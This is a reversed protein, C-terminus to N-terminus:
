GFQHGHHDLGEYGAAFEADSLEPLHYELEDPPIHTPSRPGMERPLVEPQNPLRFTRPRVGEAGLPNDSRILGKSEARAIANDLARATEVDDEDGSAEIYAEHLRFGTIPGEVDVLCVVNEVLREPSTEDVPPFTGSFVIYPLLKPAPKSGTESVGGPPTDNVPPEDPGNQHPGFEAAESPTDSRTDGASSTPGDNQQFWEPDSRGFLRQREADIVEKALASESIDYADAASAALESQHAFEKFVSAKWGLLRHLRMDVGEESLLRHVQVSRAQGMRHARAIAQWETTPKLQPECIIVVSAAQINLGVGGAEIQALLVAGGRAEKFDDILKQRKAAQVSGTLPGFVRGPLAAAVEDLVRLFYSFVLVHRGNEEAEAVIEILRQLKTSEAGGLMAAQRTAMFNGRRVAERYRMYDVSSLGLWEDVEILEPLETLVDEQNRRLYAPAVQRRFRKPAFGTADVELDPRLYAVLKRFEEIRNELPTGTLLMARESSRVIQLTRETRRAAPNKIYHAEDVVVCGLRPLGGPIADLWRLSEYTTVAIGGSRIWSGLETTRDYGHLRYGPLATREAIERMWNTVVAAPCIVLAHHSGAARLHTLVALAEITKGLGMEDGIIVRRQVLAFRAGFSQYGRLSVNLYETNLELARVAEVIDDPLDGHSKEEDETLFGLEALLSYYDAPRSIFDEWPDSAEAADRLDCVRRACRVVVRISETFDEATPTSPCFVIVHSVDESLVDVLPKLSEIESLEAPSRAFARSAEWVRLRRLLETHESSRTGIDIRMPMEEFTTRRITQAAAVISRASTESLGQHYLVNEGNLLVEYVTTFGRNRLAAVQIRERTAERLREVPMERLLRDAEVARVNNGARVAAAKLEDQEAAARDLIKMANPLLAFSNSPLLSAAPSTEGLLGSLDLWDALFGEVRLGQVRPDEAPALQRIRRAMRNSLYWRRYVRLKAAAREAAQRSDGFTFFRQFGVISRATEIVTPIEDLLKRLQAQLTEPLDPLVVFQAIQSVLQRDANRLPLIRWMVQNGRYVPVVASRLVQIAAKGARIVKIRETLIADADVVWGNVEDAVESISPRYDSGM